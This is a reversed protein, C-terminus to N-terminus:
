SSMFPDVRAAFFAGLPHFPSFVQQRFGSSGFFFFFVLKRLFMQPVFPDFPYLSPSILCFLRARSFPFRGSRGVWKSPAPRPLCASTAPWPPPPLPLFFFIITSSYLELFRLSYFFFPGALGFCQPRASPPVSFYLLGKAPQLCHCPIPPWGSV